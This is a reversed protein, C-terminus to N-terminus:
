NMAYMSYDINEFLNYKNEAQTLMELDINGESLQEHLALFRGIHEKTRKTAYDAFTDTKMIFAWDSSQALLLERAMQNLTRRRVGSADRYEEAAEIMLETIKHLHRYIWDNSDDLWVENYGKYGWSSMAPAIVPFSDYTKLYESPTITKVPSETKQVGRLLFDLWEPGEFWWHGFLEADYPSVIIPARDMAGSIHKVQRKRDSLFSDAHRSAVKMAAERDYIKKEETPGTVRHYKIGTNVRAGCGNVFPRIYEYDLDFGIDKYYERYNHDSPYGETASWVSKSSEPDRAFVAVGSECSYASYPGYKPKPQGLTIGHTEAFFYKIGFEALIKDHGPHYACEPLWFGEPFCGFVDKFTDLALKIQGRIASPHLDMMPLLSHTACSTIFEVNGLSKFKRFAHLLNNGYKQSFVFKARSFKENYMHALKNVRGDLKTREVELESLRILKDLHKLYRQVLLEDALMNMLTPSLSITVRFDVNDEVLKDFIDIIPIYTETIAEFLWNEELFSEYEPHKIFPLHAHLVIALYGKTM